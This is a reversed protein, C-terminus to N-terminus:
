TPRRTPLREAAKEVAAQAKELTIARAYKKPEHPPDNETRLRVIGRGAKMFPAATYAQAM